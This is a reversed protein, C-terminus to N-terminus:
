LLKLRKVIFGDEELMDLVNFPGLLHAVGGAVFINESEHSEFAEIIKQIWVKNRKKLLSQKIHDDIAEISYQRVDEENGSLYIEYAPMSKLRKMKLTPKLLEIFHDITNRDIEVIQKQTHEETQENFANLITATISSTNDLPRISINQSQATEVIQFDMGMELDNFASDLSITRLYDMYNGQVDFGHNILFKRTQPNLDEFSEREKDVFQMRLMNQMLEIMQGEMLKILEMVSVKKTESLQDLIEEKDRVSGILFKRMNNGLYRLLTLFDAPVESFVLDSTNLYEFIENHCPLNQLPVGFHTTGLLHITKGDKEASYAFPKPTAHVPNM